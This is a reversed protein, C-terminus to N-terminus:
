FGVKLDFKSYIKLGKLQVFQAMTNPIPFKDVQLFYNLPKYDIILREKGRKIESKKEWM